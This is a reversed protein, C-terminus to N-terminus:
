NRWESTGDSWMDTWATAPDPTPAALAEAALRDIEASVRADIAAVDAEPVGTAVLAAAHLILPDREKWQAVEEASRYAAPDAASHGSHRYTEAEVLSPGGGDRARSVAHDIAAHVADVDNGDV